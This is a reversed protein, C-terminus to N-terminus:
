SFFWRLICLCLRYPRHSYPFWRWRNCHTLDRSPSSFCKPKAYCSGCPWRQDTNCNFGHPLPRLDMEKHERTNSHSRLGFSPFACRRCRISLIVANGGKNDDYSYILTLRCMNEIQWWASNNLIVLKLVPHQARAQTIFLKSPPSPCNFSWM